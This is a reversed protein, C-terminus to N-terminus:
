GPPEDGLLSYAQAVEFIIDTFKGHVSDELWEIFCDDSNGRAYKEDNLKLLKHYAEDLILPVMEMVGYDQGNATIEHDEINKQKVGEDAYNFANPWKKLDIYMHPGEIERLKVPIPFMSGILEKTKGMLSEFSLDNIMEETVERIFDDSVTLNDRLEDMVQDMAEESTDSGTAIFSEALMRKIKAKNM